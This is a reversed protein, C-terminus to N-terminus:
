PFIWIRQLTDQLYITSKGVMFGLATYRIAASVVSLVPHGDIYKIDIYDTEKFNVDSPLQEPVYLNPDL